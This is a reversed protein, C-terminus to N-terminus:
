HRKLLSAKLRYRNYRQAFILPLNEVAAYFIMFWGVWFPNWLFFLLGFLILVWHTLEARCTELLFAQLYTQNRGRLRKKSFGLRGLLPAADPLHKKWKKIRLVEQYVRGEKEWDRGRFLWSDPKFRDSKVRIMVFVVGLHIIFWVIFDIVITVFTPFFIIRM